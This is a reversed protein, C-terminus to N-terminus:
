PTFNIRYTGWADGPSKQKPFKLKKILEGVCKTVDEDTMTSMEDRWDRVVGDNTIVFRIKVEGNTSPDRQLGDRFCAQAKGQQPRLTALVEGPAMQHAALWPDDGKPPKIEATLDAASRSPSAKSGASPDAAQAAAAGAVPRSSSSSASSKAEDGAQGGNGQSHSSAAAQDDNKPPQVAGGCAISALPISLATLLICPAIRM